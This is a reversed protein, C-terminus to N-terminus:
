DGCAGGFLTLFILLDAVDVAQDANFDGECAPLPYLCSGDDCGATSDFLPSVLDTCGPYTCSGDDQEASSDYNCASSDNCGTQPETITIVQGAAVNTITQETGNPWTVVVSDAVSNNGLGFFQKLSNQSSFGEGCGIRRMQQVGGSFVEVVTGIGFSNGHIPSLNITLYNNSSDDNRWLTHPDGQSNSSIIDVQNDNNFDGIACGVGYSSDAGMGWAAESDVMPLGVGPNTFFFCSSTGNIYLDMNMDRDADLWVAGWTFSWLNVNESVSVDQFTFDGQNIFLSNGPVDPTNTVYVDLWGDNNYDGVTCSMSDNVVDAGSAASMNDFTGDGNNKLALNGAEWDQGIYLDDWGDNDIDFACIALVSNGIGDLGAFTTVDEFQGNGLNHYLTLFGVLFSTRHSVCLDLYGDLDYDLWTVCMTTEDPDNFGCTATVDTFGFSGDNQYLRNVGLSALYIDLDGDNDYDVWLVQKSAMSETIFNMDTFGSGTNQFFRPPANNYAFSLDDWGDQNFDVFSVGGGYEQFPYSFDLGFDDAVDTFGQGHCLAALLLFTILAFFKM